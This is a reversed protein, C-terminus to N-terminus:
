REEPIADRLAARLKPAKEHMYELYFSRLPPYDQWLAKFASLAETTPNAAYATFLEHYKKRLGRGLIDSASVENERNPSSNISTYLGALEAWSFEEVREAPISVVYQMLGFFVDPYQARIAFLEEVLQDNEVPGMKIAEELPGCQRSAFLYSIFDAPESEMPLFADPYRAVGDITFPFSAPGTFSKTFEQMTGSAEGGYMEARPDTVAFTFTNGSITIEATTSVWSESGM